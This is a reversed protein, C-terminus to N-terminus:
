GLSRDGERQRRADVGQPADPVGQIGRQQQQLLVRVPDRLQHGPHLGGVQLAPAQHRRREGLGALCEPGSSPEGTVM